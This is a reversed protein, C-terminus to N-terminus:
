AVEKRQWEALLEFFTVVRNAGETMAKQEALRAAELLRPKPHHCVNLYRALNRLDDFRSAINFVAFQCPTKPRFHKLSDEVLDLIPM